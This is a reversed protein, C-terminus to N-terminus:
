AAIRSYTKAFRGDYLEIGSGSYSSAGDKRLIPYLSLYEQGKFDARESEMLPLIAVEGPKHGDFYGLEWPMWKSDKSNESTAYVLRRCSHMREKIHQATEKTVRSRDLHPDEIWDVYVTFGGRELLKKAGLVLDADSFSHSLFIDYSKYSKFERAEESLVSKATRFGSSAAERAERLTFYRM